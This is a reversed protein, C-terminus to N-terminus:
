LLHNVFLSVIGKTVTGKHDSVRIVLYSGDVEVVEDNNNSVISPPAISQPANVPEKTQTDTNANAQRQGDMNHSTEDAITVILADGNKLGIESLSSTDNHYPKPPYGGSVILFLWCTSNTMALRRLAPDGKVVKGAPLNIEEAIQRKLTALDASEDVDSLTAVGEPHRFRLRMPITSLKIDMWWKNLNRKICFYLIRGQPKWFVLLRLSM